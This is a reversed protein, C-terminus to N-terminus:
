FTGPVTSTAEYIIYRIMIVFNLAYHGDMQEGM